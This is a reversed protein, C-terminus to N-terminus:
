LRGARGKLDIISRVHDHAALEACGTHLGAVITLPTGSDVDAIIAPSFELEWDLLNHAVAQTPLVDIAHYSVDTFGEAHLLSEVVYRRRL